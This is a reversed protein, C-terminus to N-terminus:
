SVSGGVENDYKQNTSERYPLFLKSVSKCETLDRDADTVYVSCIDLTISPVKALRNYVYQEVFTLTFVSVWVSYYKRISTSNDGTEM